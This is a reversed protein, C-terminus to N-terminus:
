RWVVRYKYLLHGALGWLLAIGILANAVLAPFNAATKLNVAVEYLWAIYLSSVAVGLPHLGGLWAAAIGYLGFGSSVQQLTLYRGSDRTMIEVAGALGAVVGSLVIATFVLLRPRGGAYRAVDEGSALLRLGLGFRSTYLVVVATLVALLLLEAYVVAMPPAEVTVVFGKKTPDKLVTEVFYRAVYVAALATLFTTVAENVGLFSRLLAPVATWAGAAAAALLLGEAANKASVAALTGVIAQGEQGINWLGSRYSLVGSLGVLGVVVFVRALFGLDVRSLVGIATDVDGSAAFVVLLVTALSGAFALPYALPSPAKRQILRM